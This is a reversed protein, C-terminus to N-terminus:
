FILSNEEYQLTGDKRYRKGFVPNGEIYEGEFRGSIDFFTGKGESRDNKFEGEYKLRGTNDNIYYYIGRGHKKGAMWDGSYQLQNDRYFSGKGEFIEEKFEGDYKAGNKFYCFGKSKKDHEYYGDYKLIYIEAESYYYVGKGHKEENRMQGEYSDGNPYKILKTVPIIKTFSIHLDEFKSFKELVNALMFNKQLLNPDSIKTLVRCIACIITQNKHLFKLCNFCFTHACSLIRPDDLTQFCIPCNFMEAFEKSKDEEM